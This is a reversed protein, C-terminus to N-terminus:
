NKSELFLQIFPPLNDTELLHLLDNITYDKKLDNITGMMPMDLERILFYSIKYDEDKIFDLLERTHENGLIKSHLEFQIMPKYKKIINRAGKLVLLEHGEIDMRLFDIKQPNSSLISDLKRVPIVIKKM